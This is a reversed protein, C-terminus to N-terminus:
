DGAEWRSYPVFSFTIDNPSDYYYYQGMKQSEGEHVYQAYPYGPLTIQTAGQAMQQEIYASRLDQTRGNWFTIWLVGCLLACAALALPWRLACAAQPTQHLCNRGICLLVCVLLMHMPYLCRPGIPHVVLLPLLLLAAAGLFLLSRVKVARDSVGVCLAIVLACLYGLSFVVDLSLSLWFVHRNYAMELLIKQNCYFFAPSLALLTLGACKAHAARKSAPRARCLLLACLASLPAIILWNDEFLTHTIIPINQQMVALLGSVSGAMERYGEHGINRYGPALFMLAAGLLAGAFHGALRADFRGRRVRLVICIAGSLLCVGITVNEVFLQTSLGLLLFQVCRLMSFSDANEDMIQRAAMHLYVLLLLVPPVYNFFGAAWAYSQAFVEAPLALTLALATLIGYLKQIGCARCVGAFVGLLIACRVLERLPKSCGLMGSLFNGLLRGNTTMYHQRATSIGQRIADLLTMNQTRATFFWDDGSVPFGYSLLLLFLYVALLLFVYRSRPRRIQLSLRM